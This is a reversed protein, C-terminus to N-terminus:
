EESRWVREEGKPPRAKPGGKHPPNGGAVGGELLMGRRTQAKMGARMSAVPHTRGRESVQSTGLMLWPLCFNPLDLRPLDWVPGAPTALVTSLGSCNDQYDPM